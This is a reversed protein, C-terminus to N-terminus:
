AVRRLLALGQLDRAGAGGLADVCGQLTAGTSIVDDLLLLRRGRLSGQRGRSLSFVGSTNRIRQARSLGVQAPRHRRCLVGRPLLEAHLRELPLQQAILETHNYGRVYRRLRSMPIPIITLPHGRALAAIRDTLLDAFLRAVGFDRHYKLRRLPAKLPGEYAFLAHARSSSDHALPTCEDVCTRCMGSSSQTLMLRGCAGCARDGFLITPMCRGDGNLACQQLLDGFLDAYIERLFLFRTSFNYSVTPYSSSLHAVFATESAEGHVKHRYM